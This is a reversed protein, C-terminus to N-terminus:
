MMSIYLQYVKVYMDAVFPGLMLTIHLGVMGEIAIGREWM